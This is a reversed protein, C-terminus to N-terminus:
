TKIGTCQEIFQALATKAATENAAYYSAFDPSPMKSLNYGTSSFVGVSSTYCGFDFVKNERCIELMEVSEADRSFKTTLCVDYFVPIVSNYAECGLAELIISTREPDSATIPIVILSCGADVNSYYKDVTEDFKPWPIIGFDQEMDRYGVANGISTEILFARGEKFAATIETSADALHLYSSGDSMLDFFKEYVEVARESYISLYPIDDEDKMAIRLNASFLVQIPGGWWTTVYGYQDDLISLKGDGNLDRSGVRGIDGFKDFTWDGDLVTGYPSEIGYTEFLPKNFFLCKTNGLNKYSIDGICTFLKHAISLNEVADQAWYPQELNVYPLDKFWDLVLGQKAYAFAARAHPFVFDYDDAGAMISAAADTEYNNHSSRQVSMEFNFREGVVLNRQFIADDILDGSEEEVYMDKVYGDADRILMHFDYGGFDREPLNDKMKTEEPEIETDTTTNAATDTVGSGGGGCAAFTVTFMLIALLAAIIHSAHRATM